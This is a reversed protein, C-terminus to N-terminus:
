RWVLENLLVSSLRRFSRDKARFPPSSSKSWGGEQGKTITNDAIASSFVDAFVSSQISSYYSLTM